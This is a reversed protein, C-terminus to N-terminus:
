LQLPISFHERTSEKGRSYSPTWVAFCAAALPASYLWCLWWATFGLAIGILLLVLCGGICLAKALLGPAPTPIFLFPYFDAFRQLLLPTM